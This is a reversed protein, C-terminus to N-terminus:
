AGCTVRADCPALSALFGTRVQVREIANRAGDRGVFPIGSRTLGYGSLQCVNDDVYQMVACTCLMDAVFWLPQLAEEPVCPSLCGSTDVTWFSINLPLAGHM